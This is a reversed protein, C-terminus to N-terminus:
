ALQDLINREREIIERARERYAELDDSNTMARFIRPTREQKRTEDDCDVVVFASVIRSAHDDRRLSPKIVGNPM